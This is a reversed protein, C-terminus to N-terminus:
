EELLWGWGLDVQQFGNAGSSLRDIVKDSFRNLIPYDIRGLIGNASRLKCSLWFLFM